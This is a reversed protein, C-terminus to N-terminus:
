SLSSLTRNEGAKVNIEGAIVAAVGLDPTSGLFGAVPIFINPEKRDVSFMRCLVPNQANNVGPM